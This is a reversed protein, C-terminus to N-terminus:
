SPSGPIPFDVRIKCIHSLTFPSPFTKYMDPSSDASCIFIRDSLNFIFLTSINNRPSVSISTISFAIKFIFGFTTIITEM